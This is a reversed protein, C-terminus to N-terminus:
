FYYTGRGSLHSAVVDGSRKRLIHSAIIGIFESSTPPAYLPYGAIEQLYDRNTNWTHMVMTRINREVRYLPCRCEQAVRSYLSRAVIRTQGEDEISIRVASILMPYGRYRGTLGCLYLVNHIMLTDNM